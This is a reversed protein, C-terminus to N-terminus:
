KIELTVISKAPLKVVLGNKTLKAGKFDALKVLNPQEFTNYDDIKESTLIQGSVSKAKVDGLTLTIEQSEELDVNSLSVHIAGSKDRSATASVMPVIRNDRVIKRECQLDLPLYTADQHVNYMKFVYYTPTLVM